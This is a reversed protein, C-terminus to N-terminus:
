VQQSTPQSGIQVQFHGQAVTPLPDHQEYPTCVRVALM